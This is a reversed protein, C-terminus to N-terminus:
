QLTPHRKQFYFPTKPDRFNEGMNIQITLYHMVTLYSKSVTEM